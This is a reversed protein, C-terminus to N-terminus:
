SFWGRVHRIAVYLWRGPDEILESWGGGLGAVYHAILFIVVLVIFIKVPRWSGMFPRNNMESRVSQFNGDPTRATITIDFRKTQGVISGRKPKAVVPVEITEWAAVLPGKNRINFRLGEEYDSAELALELDSVGRNAVIIRFKGKRRCSVRSPAVNMIFETSPLVKLRGTVITNEEPAVQSGVAIAFIYVGSKVGKIKPPHFTIQVRNSAQPMLAITSASRSYWSEALGFIEVSFRDVIKGLNEVELTTMVPIGGAIVELEVPSISARILDSTKETVAPIPHVDVTRSVSGHENIATLVYSRAETPNVEREGRPDIDKDDLKVERAHEVSWTLGFKREDESTATFSIITPKRKRWPLKIHPLRLRQLFRYWPIIVLQGSINKVVDTGNLTALIQFNCVREGIFFDIWSLKAKLTFELSSGGPIPLSKPQLNYRLLAEDDVADLEFVVTEEGPNSALIKYEGKRGIIRQPTIELKPEPVSKVELALEVTVKEDPNEQSAVILQFPYSGAASEAAKIPHILLKLVEEDNPFLAVSSVTLDCWDPNLGEISILFQEITQGLNRIKATAESFDGAAMAFVTPEVLVQAKDAINSGEKM